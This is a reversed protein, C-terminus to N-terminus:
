PRFARLRPIFEALSVGQPPLALVAPANTPPAHTFEIEGTRAPMVRPPAHPSTEIPLLGASLNVVERAGDREATLLLVVPRDRELAPAGALSQGLDGVTGGPTRVRLSFVGTPLAGRVVALVELEHDTVIFRGQWHSASARPTALVVLDAMAVLEDLTRYRLTTAWARPPLAALSLSAALALLARRPLYM